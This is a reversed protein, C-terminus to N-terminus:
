TLLRQDGNSLRQRTALTAADAGDLTAALDKLFGPNDFWWSHSLLMNEFDSGATGKADRRFQAQCSVDWHSPYRPGIMGLRGSRRRGGNIIRGPVALVEDLPNYYHTFRLARNNLLLTGVAGKRMLNHDVDCATFAVERLWRRSGTGDGFQALAKLTVYCGMSHAMLHLRPRPTRALLPWIGDEVLYRAIAKAMTRDSSYSLPKGLSPWDYGVVAGRFGEARLGAEIRALRRFLGSQTTNYGHIYLLITGDGSEADIASHWQAESLQKLRWANGARRPAGYRTLSAANDTFKGRHLARRTFILM